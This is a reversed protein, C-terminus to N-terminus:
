SGEIFRQFMLTVVFLGAAAVALGNFTGSVSVIVMADVLSISAILLTVPNWYKGDRCLFVFGYVLAISLVSLGILVPLGLAGGAASFIIVNVSAVLVIFGAFINKRKAVMTLGLVWATLCLAAIILRFSFEPFVSLAATIYVMGRCSGMILPGFPNAKHRWDYLLVLACLVVGSFVPYWTELASFSINIGLLILAVVMMATAWLKVSSPDIEGAPIPRDPRHQRDYDRDFVDNFFMGATYVLSMAIVVVFVSVLDFGVGALTAGALVNSWVTPLNSIRGLKFATVPKM